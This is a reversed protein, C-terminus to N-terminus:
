IVENDCEFKSAIFSTIAEKVNEPVNKGETMHNVLKEALERGKNKDSEEYPCLYIQERQKEVEQRLKPLEEMLIDIAKIIKLLQTDTPEKCMVLKSVTNKHRLDFAKHLKKCDECYKEYFKFTRNRTVVTCNHWIAQTLEFLCNLATEIPDDKM